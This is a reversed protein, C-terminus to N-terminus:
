KKAKKEAEAIKGKLNQLVDSDPNHGLGKILWQRAKVFEELQIYLNVLNAYTEPIDHKKEIAKQYAHVAKEIEGRKGYLAGLNNWAQNYLSDQAIVKLYLNEASSDNGATQLDV